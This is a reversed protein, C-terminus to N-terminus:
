IVCERYNLNLLNTPSHNKILIKLNVSRYEFLTDLILKLQKARVKLKLKVLIMYLVLFLIVNINYRRYIDLKCIWDDFGFDFDGDCIIHYLINYMIM